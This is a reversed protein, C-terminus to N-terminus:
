IPQYTKEVKPKKPESAVNQTLEIKSKCLLVGYNVKSKANKAM